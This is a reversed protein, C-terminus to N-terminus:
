CETVPALRRAAVTRAHRRRARNTARTTRVLRAQEADAMLEDHRDRVLRALIEPTANMM